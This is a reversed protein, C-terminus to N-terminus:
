YKISNWVKNDASSLFIAIIDNSDVCKWVERNGSFLSVVLHVLVEQLTVVRCHGAGFGSQGWGEGDGVWREAGRRGDGAGGGWRGGVALALPRCVGPLVGTRLLNYSWVVFVDNGDWVRLRLFNESSHRLARFPIFGSCRNCMNHPSGSVALSSFIYKSGCFMEKRKKEVVCGSMWINLLSLLQIIDMSISSM